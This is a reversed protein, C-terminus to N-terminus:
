RVEGKKLIELANYDLLCSCKKKALAERQNDWPDPYIVDGVLAEFPMLAMAETATKILGSKHNMKRKKMEVVLLQHRHYLSFLFGNWRKVEPHNRYGKKEDKIITWIAHLERHEGLLHRNCLKSPNIQDWIRM